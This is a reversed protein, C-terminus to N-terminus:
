AAHHEEGAVHAVGLLTQPDSASVAVYAVHDRFDVETLYRLEPPTLRKKPALFRRYASEASLAALAAELLPKDEPRIPRITVEDGNHLRVVMLRVTPGFEAPETGSTM